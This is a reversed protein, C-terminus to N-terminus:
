AVSRSISAPTRRHRSSSIAGSNTRSPVPSRLSIAEMGPCYWCETSAAISVTRRQASAPRRATSSNPMGSVFSATPESAHFSAAATWRSVHSILRCTGCISTIVSTHRHSYVSWPCQPIM